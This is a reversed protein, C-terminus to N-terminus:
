EYEECHWVGEEITNLCCDERKVCDCCLGKYGTQETADSDSSSPLSERVVVKVQPPSEIQFQECYLVPRNSENLLSCEPINKCSTCLSFRKSDSM